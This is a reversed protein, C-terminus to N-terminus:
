IKIACFFQTLVHKTKNLFIFILLIIKEKFLQLTKSIRFNRSYYISNKSSETLNQSKYPLIRVNASHLTYSGSCNLVGIHVM